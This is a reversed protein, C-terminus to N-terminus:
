HDKTSPHGNTLTATETQRSGWPSTALLLAPIRDSTM